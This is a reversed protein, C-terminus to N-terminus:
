SAVLLDRAVTLKRFLEPDGGNDPHHKKAAMRYATSIREHDSDGYGVEVLLDESEWGEGSEAALLRAAEEVTMASGLAIGSPLERYGAYQQGKSGIGYREVRRLCDLGLAIARLNGHWHDFSDTSYTLPGHKRTQFTLIV